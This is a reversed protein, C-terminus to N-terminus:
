FAILRCVMGGIRRIEPMALACMRKCASGTCRTKRSRTGDQDLALLDVQARELIAAAKGGPASCADLVRMGDRAELAAACLQAGADQISVEGQAFGPLSQTRIPAHLKIGYTDFAVGPSNEIRALWAQANSKRANVRLSMPAPANGERLISEWHAPWDAQLRAVWWDPYSYKVDAPELALRAELESRRRLYGRLVANVMGRVRGSIVLESMNVCESVVTHAPVRTQRLAYIGVALVVELVQPAFTARQASWQALLQLQRWDRLTGDVYERLATRTRPEFDRTDLAPMVASLSYGNFVGDVARVGHAFVVSLAPKFEQVNM